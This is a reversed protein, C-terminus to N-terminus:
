HGACSSKDCESPDIDCMSSPLSDPQLLHGYSPQFLAGAVPAVSAASVPAVTVRASEQHHACGALIGLMAARALM